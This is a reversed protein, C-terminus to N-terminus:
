GQHRLGTAQRVYVEEEVKSQLFATVVDMTTVVYGREAAIAMLVLQSSFRSVPAYTGGCDIGHRQGWGQVFLRAKMVGTAKIKYLWRSGIAKARPPLSHAPVLDTVAHDTLSPMEKDVAAKWQAADVSRMAEQYTTPTPITASPRVPEDMTPSKIRQNMYNVMQGRASLRQLEAQQRKNAADLAPQINGARTNSRLTM